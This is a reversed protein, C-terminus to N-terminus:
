CLTDITFVMNEFVSCFLVCPLKQTHINTKLLDYLGTKLTVSLLLFLSFIKVTVVIHKHMHKRGSFHERIFSSVANLGNPEM